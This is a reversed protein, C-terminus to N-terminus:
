GYLCDHLYKLEVEQHIIRWANLDGISVMGVLRKSASLVPLYRIKRDKM